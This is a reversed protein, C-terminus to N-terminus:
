LVRFLASKMARWSTRKILEENKFVLGVGLSGLLFPPLFRKSGTYDGIDALSTLVESRNEQVINMVTQDFAILLGVVGLTTLIKAKEKDLFKVSVFLGNDEQASLEFEQTNTDFEGDLMELDSAFSAQSALLLIMLLTKLKQTMTKMLRFYWPLDM